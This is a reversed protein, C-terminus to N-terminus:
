SEDDYDEPDDFLADHESLYIDFDDAYQDPDYDLDPGGSHRGGNADTWHGPRRPMLHQKETM